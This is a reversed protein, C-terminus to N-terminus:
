LPDVNLLKVSQEVTQDIKDSLGQIRATLNPHYIGAMGGEIQDQRIVKRIRSLISVFEQYRGERNELYQQIHGISYYEECYNEFGEITLPREKTRNVSMGDKGVFDLVLIPSEKTATRYEVFRAWLDEPSPIAKPRGVKASDTKKSSRSVRTRKEM